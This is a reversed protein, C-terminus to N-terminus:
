STPSDARVQPTILSCLARISGIRETNAWAFNYLLRKDFTSLADIAQLHSGRPGQLPASIQGLFTTM